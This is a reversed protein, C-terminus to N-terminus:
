SRNFCRSIRADHKAEMEAEPAEEIAKKRVRELGERREQDERRAKRHEDRREMDELTDLHDLEAEEAVGSGGFVLGSRDFVWEGGGVMQCGLKLARKDELTDLHNAGRQATRAVVVGELLSLDYLGRRALVRAMEHAAFCADSVSDFHLPAIEDTSVNAMMDRTREVNLHQLVNGQSTRLPSEPDELQRKYEEVVAKPTLEGQLARLCYTVIISGAVAKPAFFLDISCKLASSLESSLSALLRSANTSPDQFREFDMNLVMNLVIQGFKKGLKKELERLLGDEEEEEPVEKRMRKADPEESESNIGQIADLVEKRVRLGHVTARGGKEKPSKRDNLHKYGSHDDKGGKQMCETDHHDGDHTLHLNSVRQLEARISTKCKVDSQGLLARIGQTAYISDIEALDKLCEKVWKLLIFEKESSEAAYYLTGIPGEFDSDPREFEFIQQLDGLLGPLRKEEAEQKGQMWSCLAKRMIEVTILKQDVPTDVPYEEMVIEVAKERLTKIAAANHKSLIPSGIFRFVDNLVFDYTVEPSLPYGGQEVARENEVMWIRTLEEPTYAEITIKSIRRALGENKGLLENMDEEYGAMVLVPDGNEKDMYEMIVNLAQDGYEENATLGYAEDLFVVGGVAGDLVEKTKTGTQGQFGAILDGSRVEKFTTTKVFGAACLMRSYLRAFM